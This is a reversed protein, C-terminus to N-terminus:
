VNEPITEPEPPIVFFTPELVRVSDPAFVYVPEVVSEVPMTAIELLVASPSSPVDREDVETALPATTLTEPSSLPTVSGIVIEPVPPDDPPAISLEDPAFLHDPATV